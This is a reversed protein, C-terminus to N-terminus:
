RCWKGQCQASLAPCVTGVPAWYKCPNGNKIVDLVFEFDMNPTCSFWHMLGQLHPISCVQLGMSALLRTFFTEMEPPCCLSTVGKFGAADLSASAGDITTKEQAGAGTALLAAQFRVGSMHREPLEAPLCERAEELHTDTMEPAECRAKTMAPMEHDHAKANVQLMADGKMAEQTVDSCTEQDCTEKSQCLSLLMMAAAVRAFLAM